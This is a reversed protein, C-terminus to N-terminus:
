ESKPARGNEIATGTKEIGNFIKKKRNDSLNSNKFNKEDQIITMTANDQRCQTIVIDKYFKTTNSTYRDTLVKGFELPKEVMNYNVKKSVHNVVSACEVKFNYKSREEDTKFASIEYRVYSEVIIIIM